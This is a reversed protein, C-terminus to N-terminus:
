ASANTGNTLNGAKYADVYKVLTNYDSKSVGLMDYVKPANNSHKVEISRLLPEIYNAYLDCYTSGDCKVTGNSIVYILYSQGDKQASCIYVNYIAQSSNGATSNNVAQSTPVATSYYITWNLGNYERYEPEPLGSQIQLIDLILTDNDCSSMNYEIGNSKDKYSAGWDKFKSSANAPSQETVNGQFSGSMFKNDFPTTDEGIGFPHLAFVGIVVAVIIILAAIGILYKREM